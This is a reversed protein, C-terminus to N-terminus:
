FFFIPADYWLRDQQLEFSPPCSAVWKLWALIAGSGKRYISKLFHSEGCNKVISLHIQFLIGTNEAWQSCHFSYSELCQPTWPVTWTMRAATKNKWPQDRGPFMEDFNPPYIPSPFLIWPMAYNSPRDMFTIQLNEM